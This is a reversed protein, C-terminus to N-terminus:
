KELLFKAWCRNQGELSVLKEITEKRKSDDEHSSVSKSIMSNLKKTELDELKVCLDAGIATMFAEVKPDYSIGVLPVGCSAAFILGHLRMSVVAVMRSLVGIVLATDSLGGLKAGQSRMHRLVAGAAKEDENKNILVFLPMLGLEESVYDAAAAFVKAKKDIGQWHRVIFCVYRGKPDLGYEEFKADIEQYPACGISFAPDASLVLKPKTIGYRKLENLSYSERLTIVDIDRNLVRKVLSEDRKDAIPGIGSGYMMVKNGSRKAATITYLYYWLSRRSTVNQILSGGGSIYLKTRKIIKSFSYLDFMHVCNIGYKLRTEKPKRSLTYIPIMHDIDRMAGVIAELIADDGANGMGYAGCIVVGDRGKTKKVKHRRLVEAYIDLQCRTTADVSFERKAKEYLASGLVCRLTEDEYLAKLKLGLAIHDGAPFLFGTEGDQILYKVGGVNSSITALRARAGETLAYPFTESLSTLTNIDLAAYFSDIDKIWGAFCLKGEELKLEARLAELNGREQGEGAVILRLNPSNKAAEAFGRVLTAVDKVPDLRAAIGAVISKEDVDLGFSRLYAIKDENVPEVSFDVGNYITFIRNPMFGREILRDKMSHSVGILYDMHRLAISNLTGYVVRAAPRGLYDLKYDSHITSVLPLRCGLRLLAAVFNGRSGHAHIIDYAGNKIMKSLKRVIKPINNGDMIVTPIGLKEAEDSFEGRMFCVLTVDINECLGSLLYHVHTKAGGTDGGSILHIVKM